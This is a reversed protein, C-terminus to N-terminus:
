TEFGNGHLIQVYLNGLPQNLDLDKLIRLRHFKKEDQEPLVVTRNVRDLEEPFYKKLVDYCTWARQCAGFCKLYKDGYIKAAKTNHNDHFICFVKGNVPPKVGTVREYLENM